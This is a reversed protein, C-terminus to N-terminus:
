KMLTKSSELKLKTEERQHSKEGKKKKPQVWPMCFNGPWPGFGHWLQLWLWQLSLVLNKVQQAM